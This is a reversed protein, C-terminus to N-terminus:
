PWSVTANLFVEEDITAERNEVSVRYSRPGDVPTEASFPGGSGEQEVLPTTGGVEEILLRYSYSGGQGDDISGEATLTGAGTVALEAAFGDYDELPTFRFRELILSPELSPYRLQLTVSPSSQAGAGILSVTWTSRDAPAERQVSGGARLDQCQREVAQVRTGQWSCLRVRGASVEPLAAEITGPGDVAFTVFRESAEPAARSDLGLRLLRAQQMPVAPTAPGPQTATPSGGPPPSPQVDATPSSAPSATPSPRAPPSPSPSPSPEPSVTPGPSPQPSVTPSALPSPSPSVLGVPTPTPRSEPQQGLLSALLVGLAVILLVAVTAGAIRLNQPSM